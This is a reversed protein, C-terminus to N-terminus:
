KSYTFLLLNIKITNKKNEIILLLNDLENFNNNINDM